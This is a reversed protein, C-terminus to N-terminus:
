VCWGLGLRMAGNRSVAGTWAEYLSDRGVGTSEGRQMAGGHCESCARVVDGRELCVRGSRAPAVSWAVGSRDEGDRCFLGAWTM